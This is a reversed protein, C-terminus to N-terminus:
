RARSMSSLYAIKASELLALAFAIGRAGEDM